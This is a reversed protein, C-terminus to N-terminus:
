LLPLKIGFIGALLLMFGIILKQQFSITSTSSDQKERIEGMTTSVESINKEMNEISKVALTIAASIDTLRKEIEDIRKHARQSDKDTASWQARLDMLERELKRQERRIEEISVEDAEMEHTGRITM